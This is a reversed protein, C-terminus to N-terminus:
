HFNRITNEFEFSCYNFSKQNVKDQYGKTVVILVCISQQIADSIEPLLLDGTKLEKEDLWVHYGFEELKRALIKSKEHDEGNEGWEHSMFVCPKKSQEEAKKALINSKEHNEEISGEYKKESQKKSTLNNM